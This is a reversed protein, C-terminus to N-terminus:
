DLTLSWHCCASCLAGPRRRVMMVSPGRTGRASQSIYDRLRTRPWGRPRLKAPPARVVESSFSTRSADQDSGPAAVGSCAGELIDSRRMSDRLNLAAERLLFGENKHAVQIWLTTWEIVVGSSVSTTSPTITTLCTFNSDLIRIWQKDASFWPGATGIFVVM